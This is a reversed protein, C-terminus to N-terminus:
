QFFGPSKGSLPGPGGPYLGGPGALPGHTVSIRKGRVARGSGGEAAGIGGASACALASAAGWGGARCGCDEQWRGIGHACSWSTNERIEVEFQPPFLELFQGYNTLRVRSDNELRHLAYALAMDGFPRHHGYSEGDTAVHVLQPSPEAPDFAELLGRAFGEGDSLTDRFAIGHSLAGDYFFLAIKKGSPLPCWYARRPNVGQKFEQWEKKGAPRFRRAQHPALVTFGMGEQALAELSKVDVATEPLWMGEPSRGWTHRFAAIGWRIQTLRDRPETLPLIVHTYPHALANGHGGRIPRSRDDAFKLGRLVAPAKEAIWSLLTPGFNFSIREYNNSIRATKGRDDLIRSRANPAYCEAAIRENWDQYPAASEEREVAGLWPNERPPQYFHGHICVYRPHVPKKSM